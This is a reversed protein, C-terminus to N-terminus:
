KYKISAIFDSCKKAALNIAESLGQTVINRVCVIGELDDDRKKYRNYLALYALIEYSDCLIQEALQKDVAFFQQLFKQRFYFHM